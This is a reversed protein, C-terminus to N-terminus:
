SSSVATKTSLKPPFVPRSPGLTWLLRPTMITTLTWNRRRGLAERFGPDHTLLFEVHDVRRQYNYCVLTKFRGLDFVERAALDNTIYRFVGCVSRLDWFTSQGNVPKKRSWNYPEETKLDDLPSGLLVQSLIETLVDVPLDSLLM